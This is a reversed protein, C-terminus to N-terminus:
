LWGSEFCQWCQQQRSWPERSQGRTTKQLTARSIETHITSTLSPSPTARHYSVYHTTSHPIHSHVTTCRMNVEQPIDLRDTTKAVPPNHTTNGPQSVDLARGDRVVGRPEQIKSCQFIASPSATSIFGSM